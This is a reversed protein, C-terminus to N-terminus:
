EQVFHNRLLIIGLSYIQREHIRADKAYNYIVVL